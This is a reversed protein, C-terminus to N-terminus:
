FRHFWSVIFFFINKKRFRLLTFFVKCRTNIVWLTELYINVIQLYWHRILFFIIGIKMEFILYVNNWYIRRHIIITVGNHWPRLFFSRDARKARSYLFKCAANVCFGYNSRVTACRRSNALKNPKGTNANWQFCRGERQKPSRTARQFCPEFLVDKRVVQKDKTSTVFM